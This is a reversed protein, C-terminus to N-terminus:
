TIQKHVMLRESMHNHERSIYSRNVFICSHEVSKLSTVSTRITHRRQTVAPTLHQRPLLLSAPRLLDDARRRDHSTRPRSRLLLFRPTWRRSVRGPDVPRGYCTTMRYRKWLAIDPNDLPASTHVIDDLCDHIYSHGFLNWDIL